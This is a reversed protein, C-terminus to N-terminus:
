QRLEPNTLVVDLNKLFLQVVVTLAQQFPTAGTCYEESKITPHEVIDDPCAM